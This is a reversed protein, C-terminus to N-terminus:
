ERTGKFAGSLLPNLALFLQPRRRVIPRVRCPKEMGLAEPATVSVAAVFHLLDIATPFEHDILQEVSWRLTRLADCIRKAGDWGALHVKPNEQNPV